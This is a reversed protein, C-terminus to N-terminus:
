SRKWCHEVIEVFGDSELSIVQGVVGGANHVVEEFGEYQIWIVRM